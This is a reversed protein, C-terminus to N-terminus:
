SIKVPHKEMDKFITTILPRIGAERHHKVNGKIIKHFEPDYYEYSYKTLGKVTLGKNVGYIHGILNGNIKIEVSFM